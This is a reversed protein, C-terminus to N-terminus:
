LLDSDMVSNVQKAIAMESEGTETFATVGYAYFGQIYESFMTDVNNVVDLTTVEAIPEFTELNENNSRYIRYGSVEIRNHYVDFVVPQWKLLTQGDKRLLWSIIPTRPTGIPPDPLPDKLFFAALFYPSDNPDGSYSTLYLKLGDNNLYNVNIFLIFSADLSDGTPTGTETDLILLKEPFSGGVFLKNEFVTGSFGSASYMLPNFSPVLAGTSKTVRAVTPRLNGSVTTFSGVMFIDTGYDVFEFVLGGSINPDFSSLAGTSIDVSAVRNRPTSGPGFFMPTTSGMYIQSGIVKITNVTAGGSTIDANWTDVIDGSTTVKAILRRPIGNIFTFQGSIYLDTGDTEISVVSSNAFFDWPLLNGNM